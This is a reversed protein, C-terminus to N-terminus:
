KTNIIRLTKFFIESYTEKFYKRYFNVVSAYDRSKFLDIHGDVDCTNEAACMASEIMVKYYPLM